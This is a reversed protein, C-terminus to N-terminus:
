AWMEGFRGCSGPPGLRYARPVVGAGPLGADRWGGATQPRAPQMPCPHARCADPNRRSPSWHHMNMFINCPAFGSHVLTLPKTKNQKKIFCCLLTSYIKFTCSLIDPWRSPPNQINGPVKYVDCSVLCFVIGWIVPLIPDCYLICPM